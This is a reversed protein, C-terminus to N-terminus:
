GFDPSFKKCKTFNQGPSLEAYEESMAECEKKTEQCVRLTQGEACYVKVPKKATASAAVLALMVAAVVLVLLIRRM